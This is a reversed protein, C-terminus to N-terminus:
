PYKAGEVHGCRATLIVTKKSHILHCLRGADLDLQHACRIGAVVVHGFLIRPSQGLFHDFALIVRNDALM